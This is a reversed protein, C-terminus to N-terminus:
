GNKCFQSSQYISCHDLLSARRARPLRPSPPSGPEPDHSRSLCHPTSLWGIVAEEERVLQDLANEVDHAAWLPDAYRPAKRNEELEALRLLQLKRPPKLEGLDTRLPNRVDSRRISRPMLRHPSSDAPLTPDLAVALVPRPCLSRLSRERSM